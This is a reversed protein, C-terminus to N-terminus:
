LACIDIYIYEFAGYKRKFTDISITERVFRPLANLLKPAAFVFAWESLTAKPKYESVLYPITM